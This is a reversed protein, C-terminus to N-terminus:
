TNGTCRTCTLATSEFVQQCTFEPKVYPRRAPPSEQDHLDANESAERNIMRFDGKFM